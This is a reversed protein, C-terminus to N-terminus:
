NVNIHQRTASVAIITYGKSGSEKRNFPDRLTTFFTKFLNKMQTYRGLSSNWSCLNSKHSLFTRQVRFEEALTNNNWLIPRGDIVNEISKVQLHCHTYFYAQALGVSKIIHLNAKIGMLSEKVLFTRLFFKTKKWRQHIFLNNWLDTDLFPKKTSASFSCIFIGLNLSLSSCKKIFMCLKLLKVDNHVKSFKSGTMKIRQMLLHKLVDVWMSVLIQGMRLLFSQFLVNCM